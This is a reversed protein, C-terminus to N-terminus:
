FSPSYFLVTYPFFDQRLIYCYHSISLSPLLNTPTVWRPTVRMPTVHMTTAHMLTVVQMFFLVFLFWLADQM